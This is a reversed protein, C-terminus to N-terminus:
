TDRESKVPRLISVNNQRFDAFCHFCIRRVDLKLYTLTEAIDPDFNIESMSARAYGDAQWMGDANNGRGTSVM